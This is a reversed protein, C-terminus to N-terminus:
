YYFVDDRKFNKTNFLYSVSIGLYSGRYGMSFLKPSNLNGTNRIELDVSNSFSQRYIASFIFANGAVNVNAIELGLNLMPYIKAQSVERITFTSNKNSLVNESKNMAYNVSVGILARIKSNSRFGLKSIFNIPIEINNFNHKLLDGNKNSDNFFRYGKNVFNIGSAITMKKNFGYQVAFGASFGSKFRLNFQSKISDVVYCRSSLFSATPGIRWGEQSKLAFVSLMLVSLVISKLKMEAFRHNNKKM